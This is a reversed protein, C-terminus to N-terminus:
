LSTPFTIAVWSCDPSNLSHHAPRFFFGAGLNLTVASLTVQQFGFDLFSIQQNIHFGGDSV